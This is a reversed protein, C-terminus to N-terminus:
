LIKVCKKSVRGQAACKFKKLFKRHAPSQKAWYRLLTKRYLNPKPKPPTLQKPPPLVSLTPFNRSPALPSSQRIFITREFPITPPKVFPKGVTTLCSESVADCPGSGTPTQSHCSTSTPVLLTYDPNDLSTFSFQRTLMADFNFYTSTCHVTFKFTCQTIM